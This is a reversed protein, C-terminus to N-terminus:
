GTPDAPEALLKVELYEEFGLRGMERGIGSQKYGGFPVDPGYYMGGDVVMTGARIRRAVRMSREHDNSFVAGSLGYITNNAIRVADEDDDFAQAVLVPGFVEEQAIEADEAVDVLLTPEYYYGRPLHEPRKAGILPRAGAGIAREVYGEVRERQGASILPGMVNEPDAPDGYPLSSLLGLAVDVGEDFRSRPLLLRTTTSCGQGAHGMIQFACPLIATSFDADDLVVHPSKGGLELFTKKITDSALRMIRRGTRTSGTFSILDVRPDLVLEEGRENARSTIVNVVGPPIDTHETIIRGLVSACWPTAPAAKLVITNGAALAPVVKALNIQTPQNWPTIAGVVGVAEREAWRHTYQGVADANGHDQSFDYGELLDAVWGVGAVPADFGVSSMFLSPIGAEAVTMTKFAEAHDELARQLQRLVSLRLEINTSWDTDDFARRAAAIAADIDTASADAADGIVDETAPNVNDYTAGDGASVLKGDILLRDESLLDPM